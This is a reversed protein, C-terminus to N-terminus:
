FLCDIQRKANPTLPDRLQERNRLSSREDLYGTISLNVASPKVQKVLHNLVSQAQLDEEEM